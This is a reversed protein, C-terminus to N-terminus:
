QHSLKRRFLYMLYFTVATDPIDIKEFKQLYGFVIIRFILVGRIDIYVM